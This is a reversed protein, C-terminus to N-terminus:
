SIRVMDLQRGPKERCSAIMELWGKKRVARTQDEGSRVMVDFAIQETNIDLCGVCFGDPKGISLCRVPGRAQRWVPFLDIKMLATGPLVRSFDSYKVKFM